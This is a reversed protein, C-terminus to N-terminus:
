DKKRNAIYKRVATYLAYTKVFFCVAFFITGILQVNIEMTCRYANLLLFNGFFLVYCINIIIQKM